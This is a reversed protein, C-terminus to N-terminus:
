KGSGYYGFEFGGSIGASAGTKGGSSYGFQPSSDPGAYGKKSGYDRGVDAEAGIGIGRGAVGVGVNGQVFQGFTFGSGSGGASKNGPRGATPNFGIGGGLGAGVRGTVFPQCTETDYGFSMGGGWGSYADLSFSWLGLPDIYILPNGNVYAYTNIGGALGIPDSQLYRGLGPDYTRRWNYSLASESDAYQGPFRLNQALSGTVSAGEGFPGHRMDWVVTKAADTLKRPQNLHDTHVLYLPVGLAGADVWGVPLDDLWILERLGEGTLGDHEALLKGDTDYIFHTKAGGPQDKVARLGRSDSTYRAITLGDRSLEAMNGAQDYGYAPAVPAPTM